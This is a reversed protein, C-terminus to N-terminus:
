VTDSKGRILTDLLAIVARVHMWHIVDHQKEDAFRHESLKELEEKVGEFDSRRISLFFNLIKEPKPMGFFGLEGLLFEKEFAARLEEESNIYNM